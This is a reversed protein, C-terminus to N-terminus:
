IDPDVEENVVLKWDQDVKGVRPGSPVLFSAESELGTCYERLGEPAGDGFADLLWGIRRAAAHAFLLADAVLSDEFDAQEEALEIALNAVNSIGGSIGVDAALMLMTTGVSAVKAKSKQTFSDGLSASDVYDRSYFELRSRGLTRERVTRSTAVQFVQAAHHSAGYRAAASLWGVLYEVGLHAMLDDIYLMPDPAGWTRYEAPIPIWLGRAPSFIQSRKRLLAMRQSIHQAPIACLHMVEETSLSSIGHALAWDPLESVSVSGRPTQTIYQNMNCLSVSIM